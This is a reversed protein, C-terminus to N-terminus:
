LCGWFAFWIFCGAPGGLKSFASLGVCVLGVTVVSIHVSLLFVHKTLTFTPSLPTFSQFPLGLPSPGGLSLWGPTV